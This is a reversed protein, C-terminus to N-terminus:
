VAAHGDRLGILRATCSLSNGVELWLWLSMQSLGALYSIHLAACSAHPLYDLQGARPETMNGTRSYSTHITVKRSAALMYEYNSSPAGCGCPEPSCVSSQAM